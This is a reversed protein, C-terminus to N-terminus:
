GTVDHLRNSDFLKLDEPCDIDSLTPLLVPKRGATVLRNRITTFVSSTSWEIGAFLGPLLIEADQGSCGIAYFGGDRSPGLVVEGKQLAEFGELIIQSNLMPIDSGVLLIHEAGALRGERFSEAMRTGLDGQPQSCYFHEGGLWEQMLRESGGSYHVLLFTDCRNLRHYEAVVNETLNKQLRAAGEAGLIPILRTKTTGPEPYRTFLVLGNSKGGVSTGLERM